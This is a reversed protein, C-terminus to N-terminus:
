RLVEFARDRRAGFRYVAFHDDFSAVRHIGLREMVAFSTRDILSFSQDAFARGIQWAAELDGAGVLEVRAAGARMASWLREAPEHGLRGATLLWSEALVHDTVVLDDGAALVETARRHGRDGADAAAYLASTDVFLSM